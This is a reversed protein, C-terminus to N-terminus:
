IKDFINEPANTDYVQFRDPDIGWLALQNANTQIQGRLETNYTIAIAEPDDKHLQGIMANILFSKGGKPPGYLIMSYGFPMGNGPMAFSWNVSPM